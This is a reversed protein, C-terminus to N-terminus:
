DTFRVEQAPELVEDLDEALLVGQQISSLAARLYQYRYKWESGYLARLSPEPYPSGDTTVDGDSRDSDDNWEDTTGFLRCIFDLGTTTNETPLEDTEVGPRLGSNTAVPVAVEPLRIGGLALGTAPDTKVRVGEESELELRPAIVPLEGTNVWDALAKMAARFVFKHSGGANSAPNNCLPLGYSLVLDAHSAGAVEWIRLTDSDAQKHLTQAAGLLPLDGEALVVMVPTVLDTRIELPYPVEITDPVPSTDPLEIRNALLGGAWSQSLDAAFGVSHIFFGDFINKVPSLANYYTFMRAASQSQGHAIAKNVLPTLEGLPAIAGEAPNLVADAIQAYMDYAWADGPHDLRYYRFPNLTKLARVDEFQASVGVWIYGRRLYEEGAYSWGPDVGIGGTVNQWEIVVTGNFDEPNEPRRIIIRIQYYAELDSLSVQWRGDASLPRDNKLTRAHGEVFFEEAVFGRDKISSAKLNVPLGYSSTRHVEAASVQVMQMSILIVYLSALRTLTARLITTM